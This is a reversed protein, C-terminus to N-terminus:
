YNTAEKLLEDLINKTFIVLEDYFQEFDDYELSRYLINSMTYGLLFFQKSTSNIQIHITGNKIWFDNPHHIWYQRTDYESFM